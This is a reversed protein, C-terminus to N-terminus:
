RRGGSPPKELNLSDSHPCNYRTHGVEKCDWCTPVSKSPCDRRMHGLGGCKYCKLPERANGSNQSQWGKEQSTGGKSSTDPSGKNGESSPGQKTEKGQENQKFHKFENQMNSVQHNLKQIMAEIKKMPDEEAATDEAAATSMRVQPQSTSKTDKTQTERLKHEHEIQRIEVRLRDYNQITDYKHRSSDKLNQQLGMWFRSRLMGDREKSSRPPQQSAEEAKDLLDELRCSWAGVCEKKDQTAAYFEALLAEGSEVTGYVTSLKSLIEQISADPGLRKAIGGASGKLSKRMAQRINDRSHLADHILCEAEWKWQDFSVEGKVTPDGSFNSLKPPQRNGGVDQSTKVKGQVEPDQKEDNEKSREHKEDADPIKGTSKLFDLMYNELDENSELEVGMGKLAQTLKEAKLAQTLEEGSVAM